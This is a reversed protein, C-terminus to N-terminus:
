DARCQSRTHLLLLSLISFLLGHLMAPPRLTVLPPRMDSSLQWLDAAAEWLVAADATVSAECQAEPDVIWAQM